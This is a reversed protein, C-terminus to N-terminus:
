HSIFFMWSGTSIAWNTVLFQPVGQKDGGRQFTLFSHLDRFYSTEIIMVRFINLLPHVNLFYQIYISVLKPCIGATCKIHSVTCTMFQLCFSCCVNHMPHKTRMVAAIFKGQNHLSHPFKPHHILSLLMNTYECENCVSFLSWLSMLASVSFNANQAIWPETPNCM